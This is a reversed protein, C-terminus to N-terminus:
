SFPNQIIEFRNQIVTFSWQVDNQVVEQQQVFYKQKEGQLTHMIQVFNSWQFYIDNVLLYYKSYHNGNV